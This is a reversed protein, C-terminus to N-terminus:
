REVERGPPRGAARRRAQRSCVAGGGSHFSRKEGRRARSKGGAEGVGTGGEVIHLRANVTAFVHPSPAKTVIEYRVLSFM